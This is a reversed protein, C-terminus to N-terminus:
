GTALAEGPLVIRCRLGAQAFDLDVKGRLDTTLVRELMVRGFGSREPPTVPPGGSEIWDLMLGGSPTRQWGIEVVGSRTSLAGYKAANTALEHLAIGLVVAVKPTVTVPPGAISVNSPEDRRYPKLEDDVIGKLSVGAWNAAALRGHTQALAHIRGDFSRRAEEPSRAMAFSHRSISIVTALTNKVRHSLEAVLLDRQREAQKRETIDVSAGVMRVPKGDRRVVNAYTYIWTVRGDPTVSRLEIDYPADAYLADRVANEVRKRDDPHVHALWDEFTGSFEERRMGHMSYISATWTIRDADVQWDWLGVKGAETALRLREDNKLASQLLRANDIAIAANTAISEVIEESDRTFVGPQEHGFFLGGHVEGSRSVVPVALYSVVPLHEEPM